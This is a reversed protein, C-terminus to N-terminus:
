LDLQSELNALTNITSKEGIEKDFMEELDTVLIELQEHFCFPEFVYLM